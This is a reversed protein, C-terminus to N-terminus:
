QGRQIAWIQEQLASIREMNLLKDETEYRAREEPSLHETINEIIEDVESQRVEAVKEFWEELYYRPVEAFPALLAAQEDYQGIIEELSEMAEREFRIDEPRHANKLKVVFTFICTPGREPRASFTEIIWPLYEEMLVPDWDGAVITFPLAIYREQRESLDQNLFDDLSRGGLEFREAMYRRFQAQCDKLTFGVPLAPLHLREGDPRRPYNISDRHDELRGAILEFVMREAFGDPEQTPCGLAFYFQYNRAEDWQRFARRFKHNIKRRDCNVIHLPTLPHRLTLQKLKEQLPDELVGGSGLDGAELKNLFALAGERIQNYSLQAEQASITGKMEKEYVRQYRGSLMALETFADSQADLAASMREFLKTWKDQAILQKGERVLQKLRPM